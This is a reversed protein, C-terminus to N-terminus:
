RMKDAPAKPAKYGEEGTGWESRRKGESAADRFRVAPDQKEPPVARTIKPKPPSGPAQQEQQQDEHPHPVPEADGLLQQDGGQQAQRGGEVETAGGEHEHDHEEQQALIEEVSVGQFLAEKEAEVREIKEHHAFHELDEPHVYAEDTQTEPTSHFEEAFNQNPSESFGRFEGGINYM